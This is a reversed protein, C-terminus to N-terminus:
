DASSAGTHRYSSGIMTARPKKSKTESQQQTQATDHADHARLVIRRELSRRNQARLIKRRRGQEISIAEVNVVFNGGIAQGGVKSDAGVEPDKLCM